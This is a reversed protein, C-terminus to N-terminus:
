RPLAAVIGVVSSVALMGLSVREYGRSNMRRFLRSGLVFGALTAAVLLPTGPLPEWTGALLLAAIGLPMRFLSLAVLTDRTLLPDTMRHTLYYVVPPGGLTTSTTLYGSTFGAVAGWAPHLAKRSSSQRRRSRLRLAVALLIAVAVLIQLVQQPLVSLAVAGLALGPLSWLGLSIVERMDPRARERRGFIIFLDCLAGTIMITTVAAPSGVLATLLPASLLAFGFGTAAQSTASVLIVAAMVAYLILSDM